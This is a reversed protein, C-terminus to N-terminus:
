RGRLYDGIRDQAHSNAGSQPVISVAFAEAFAISAVRNPPTDAKQRLHWAAAIMARAGEPVRSREVAPRSCFCPVGSPRTSGSRSCVPPRWMEGWRLPRADRVDSGHTTQQGGLEFQFRPRAAAIM